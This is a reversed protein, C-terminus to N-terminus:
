ARRCVFPCAVVMLVYQSPPSAAIGRVWRALFKREQLSIRCSYVSRRAPTCRYEEGRDRRWRYDPTARHLGPTGRRRPRAVKWRGWADQNQAVHRLSTPGAERLEGEAVLRSVPLDPDAAVPELARIEDAMEIAGKRWHGCFKVVLSPKALVVPYLGIGISELSEPADRRRCAAETSYTSWKAPMTGPAVILPHLGQGSRPEPMQM